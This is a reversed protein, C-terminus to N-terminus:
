PPDTQLALAYCTETVIQPSYAAVALLIRRPYTHPLTPHPQNM